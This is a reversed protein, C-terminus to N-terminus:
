LGLSSVQALLYDRVGDRAASIGIPHPERAIVKLHSWARSGSFESEPADKSLASPPSVLIITFVAAAGLIILALVAGLTALLNRNSQKM